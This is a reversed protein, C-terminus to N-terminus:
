PIWTADGFWGSLVIHLYNWTDPWNAKPVGSERPSSRLKETTALDPNGASVFIVLAKRKEDACKKFTQAIRNM